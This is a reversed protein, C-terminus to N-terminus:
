KYLKLFHDKLTGQGSLAKMYQSGQWINGSILAERESHLFIEEVGKIM